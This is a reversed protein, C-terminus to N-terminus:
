TYNKKENEVFNELIERETKEKNIDDTFAFSITKYSQFKEYLNPFRISALQGNYESRLKQRGNLKGNRFVYSRYIRRPDRNEHRCITRIVANKEDELSNNPTSKPIYKAFLRLFSELWGIGNGQFDVGLFERLMQIKTPITRTNCYCDLYREINAQEMFGIRVLKYNQSETLVYM